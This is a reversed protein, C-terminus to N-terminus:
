ASASTRIVATRHSVMPDDGHRSRLPIITSV